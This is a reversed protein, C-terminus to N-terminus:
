RQRRGFAGGDAYFNRTSLPLAVVNSATITTGLASSSTQIVETEAQVVVQDTQTGVELQRDLVPTETVQITVSPVESIKFGMAKFTVRYNGPPLLTFKYSGDAGTIATRTLNTDNNALTVAAGTIVANSADTVTGTLAGTGSSQGPLELTSLALLASCFAVFRLSKSPRM